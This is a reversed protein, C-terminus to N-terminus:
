PTYISIKQIRNCFRATGSTVQALWEVTHNGPTVGTKLFQFTKSNTGTPVAGNNTAVRILGVGPSAANNDVEVRYDASAGADLSNFDSSVEIHFTCTSGPCNIVTPTLLHVFSTGVTVCGTLIPTFARLNTKQLTRGPADQAMTQMAMMLMAAGILFPLPKRTM